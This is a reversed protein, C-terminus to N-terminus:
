LSSNTNVCRVIQDAVMERDLPEVAEFFAAGIETNFVLDFMAGLQASNAADFHIMVDATYPLAGDSGSFLPGSGVPVYASFGVDLGKDIAAAEVKELAAIYATVDNVKVAFSRATAAPLSRPHSRLVLFHVSGRFESIAMYKSITEGMAPNVLADSGALASEMNPYFAYTWGRGRESAGTSVFCAGRTLAGSAKFLKEDSRLLEIYAAPNDTQFYISGGAPKMPAADEASFVQCSVGLVLIGIWKNM